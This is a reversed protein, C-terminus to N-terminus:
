IINFRYPSKTNAKIIDIMNKSRKKLTFELHETKGLIALSGVALDHFFRLEERFKVSISMPLIEKYDDNLKNEIFEILRKIESIRLKHAYTIENSIHQMHVYSTKINLIAHECVFPPIIQPNSKSIIQYDKEIVLTKKELEQLLSSVNDLMAQESVILLSKSLLENLGNDLFINMESIKAKKQNIRERYYIFLGVLLNGVIGVLFNIWMNEM